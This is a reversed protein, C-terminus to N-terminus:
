MLLMIIIFLLKFRREMWKSQHIMYLVNCVFYKSIFLQIIHYRGKQFIDEGIRIKDLNLVIMNTISAIRWYFSASKVACFTRIKIETGLTIWGFQIRMRLVFKLLNRCKFSEFTSEFISFQDICEEFLDWLIFVGFIFFCCCCGGISHFEEVFCCCDVLKKEV